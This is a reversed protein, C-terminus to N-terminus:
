KTRRLTMWHESFLIGLILDGIVFGVVLISAEGKLFYFLGVAFIM